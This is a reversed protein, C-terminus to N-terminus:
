GGHLARYLARVSQGLRPGPRFLIDPPISRISGSRVARLRAWEPFSAVLSAAVVASDAPVIIVDPDRRLVEERSFRPYAAPDGAAINVGGARELAENIFGGSVTMLPSRDLVIFASVPARGKTLAAISDLEREISAVLRRAESRRGVLIGITDIAALAGPITEAAVSFPTMGLEALRKYAASSNGVFTMLVLDPRLRLIAEYSPTSMDSVVPLSLAEPPHNCFATRGIMEGGAGIAFLTETLSPALSIIRRAPRALRVSSGTADRLEISSTTEEIRGNGSRDDSCAFLFLAAIVAPLAQRLTAVVRPRQGIDTQVTSSMIDADKFGDNM